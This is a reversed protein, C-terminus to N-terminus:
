TAGGLVAEQLGDVMKGVTAKQIITERAKIGLGRRLKESELLSKLKNSLDRRNGPIFRIGNVTDQLLEADSGIEDPILTPTGCSMSVNLALGVAGGMVSVDARTMWVADEGEEVHGVFLIRKESIGYHRLIKDAQKSLNDFEPGDGVIVLQFDNGERMLDAAADIVLDFRKKKVLTGLSVVVPIGNSLNNLSIAKSLVKLDNLETETEPISVANQAINIRCPPIGLKKVGNLSQQGYCVVHDWKKLFNNWVLPKPWSVLNDYKTWAVTRINKCKSYSLLKRLSWIRANGEAVIVDPHVISVLSEWNRYFFLEQVFPIRYSSVDLDAVSYNLEVNSFPSADRGQFPIAVVLDVCARQSFEEFVPVRYHEFTRQLILTKTM